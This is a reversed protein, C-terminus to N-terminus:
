NKLNKIYSVYLWIYNHITIQLKPIHVKSFDVNQILDRSSVRSRGVLITPFGSDLNGM